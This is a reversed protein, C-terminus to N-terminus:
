CASACSRSRACSRDLGNDRLLAGGLKLFGEGAKGAHPLMRHLNLPKRAGLLDTYSSPAHTMDFYHIRAM